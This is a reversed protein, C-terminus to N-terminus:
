IIRLKTLSIATIVHRQTSLQLRAPARSSQRTRINPQLSIAARRHVPLFTRLNLRFRLLLTQLRHEFLILFDLLLCLRLSISSM